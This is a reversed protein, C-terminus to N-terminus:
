REEGNCVALHGMTANGTWLMEKEFDDEVQSCDWKQKLSSVARKKGDKRGVGLGSKSLFTGEARISQAVSVVTRTVGGGVANVERPVGALTEDGREGNEEEPRAGRRGGRRKRGKGEEQCSGVSDQCRKQCKRSM